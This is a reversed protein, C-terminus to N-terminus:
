FFVPMYMKVIQHVSYLSMFICFYKIGYIGQIEMRGQLKKMLSFIQNAFDGAFDQLSIISRVFSM